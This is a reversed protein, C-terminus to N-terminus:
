GRFYIVEPECHEKHGEYEDERMWQGCYECMEWGPVVRNTGYRHEARDKYVYWEEWDGCLGHCDTYTERYYVEASDKDEIYRFGQELLKQIFEGRKM